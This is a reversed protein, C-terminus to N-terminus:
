LGLMSRLSRTRVGCTERYECPDCNSRDRLRPPPGDLARVTRVTRRYRAKNRTTLRVRRVVGFAPYEVLAAPVERECEWALAKALGVARVRQPAWVGREPPEGPSAFTPTPPDGDLVKTAVGRCDRGKLSVDRADPAVLAEWDDRGALRDLATRYAGPSVGLPLSRLTADDAGRLERYRFALERRREAAPPPDRDDDRRAYYLQRPCYAAQALDSATPM